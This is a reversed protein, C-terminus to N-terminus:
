DLKTIIIPEDDVIVTHEFMAAKEGDKTRLSWGDRELILQASGKSIQNEVTIALGKPLTLGVGKKGYSLIKPDAHLGGHEKRGIGHSVYNTVYNYGELEAITQLANSIDGTKNGPKAQKIATDVCLRATRILKADEETVDGIGFTVCHDTYFGKYVIGFDIKVVDGDVFEKKSFPITHLIFDNVSVCVHGPFPNKPGPVGYFASQVGYKKCLFKARENIEFPTSGKVTINILEKLIKVSIEGAKKYTSIEKQSTYVNLFKRM